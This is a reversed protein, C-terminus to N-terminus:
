TSPMVENIIEGVSMNVVRVLGFHLKALKAKVLNVLTPPQLQLLGGRVVQVLEEAQGRLPGPLYTPMCTIYDELSEKLLVERHNDRGLMNQLSLLATQLSLMHLRNMTESREQISDPFYMLKIYPLFTSWVYWHTIEGERLTQYTAIKLFDEMFRLINELLHDSPM